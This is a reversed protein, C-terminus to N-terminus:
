FVHQILRRTISQILWCNMARKKKKEDRWKSLYFEKWRMSISNIVYFILMECQNILEVRLPVFNEGVNEREREEEMLIERLPPYDLVPTKKSMQVMSFVLAVNEGKERERADHTHTHEKISIIIIQPPPSFSSSSSSSPALSMQSYQQPINAQATWHINPCNPSFSCSFIFMTDRVFTSSCTSFFLFSLFLISWFIVILSLSHATREVQSQRDTWVCM